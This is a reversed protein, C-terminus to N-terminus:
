AWVDIPDTPCIQSGCWIEESPISTNAALRFGAHWHSKSTYFFFFFRQAPPHRTMTELVALTVTLTRWPALFDNQILCAGYQSLLRNEKESPRADSPWFRLRGKFIFKNTKLSLRFSTKTQDSILWSWHPRWPSLSDLIRWGEAKMKKSM